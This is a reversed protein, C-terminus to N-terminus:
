DEKMKPPPEQRAYRVEEAITSWDFREAGQNTINVIDGPFLNIKLYSSGPKMHITQGDRKLDFEDGNPSLLLPKVKVKIKWSKNM